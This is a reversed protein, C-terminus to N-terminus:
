VCGHTCARIIVALQPWISASNLLAPEQHEDLAPHPTSPPLTHRRPGVEDTHGCLVATCRSPPSTHPVPPRSSGSLLSELKVGRLPVKSIVPRDSPPRRRHPDPHESHKMELAKCVLDELSAEQVYKVTIFILLLM